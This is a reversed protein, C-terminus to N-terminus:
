PGGFLPRGAAALPVLSGASAGGGAKLLPFGNIRADADGAPPAALAGATGLAAYIPEFRALYAGAKEPTTSHYAGAAAIWDGRGAAHRALLRAAYLANAGPDMMQELSGFAAGHWRYNLQFCGVDINGTGQAVADALVALAEKQTPFWMGEGGRNLAWPWPQLAGDRNRGTETLTVAMLVRLPM